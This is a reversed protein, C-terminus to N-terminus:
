SEFDMGAGDPYEGYATITMKTGDTFVTTLYHSEGDYDYKFDKVTKGIHKKLERPAKSESLQDKIENLRGNLKKIQNNMLERREDIGKKIDKMKM